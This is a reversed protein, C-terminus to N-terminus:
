LHVCKKYVKGPFEKVAKKLVLGMLLVNLRSASLKTIQSITELQVEISPLQKMLELEEPELAIVMPPTPTKLSLAILSEFQNAIDVASEVLRAKGEKIWFHNGRFADIDARGPIAFLRKGQQIGWEMTSNSGSKEPAEILLVGLSLASVIRNRQPFNQRNPPIAMSFESIIAGKQVIQNALNKNEKPYLDALGSGIVGLTRGSKLAGVHACTDIGRALGSIVTFGLGALDESFKEAMERGYLSCDRTGIVSIARQDSPLIEGCVYLVIPHDHLALLSAPYTKSTFPIVKANFRHVLELNKQNASHDRPKGWEGAIKSGFLAEMEGTTAELAAEASGFHALACKVRVPGMHPVASLIMLAETERDIVTM